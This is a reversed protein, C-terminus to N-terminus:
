RYKYIDRFPIGFMESIKRAEDRIQEFNIKDARHIKIKNKFLRNFFTNPNRYIMLTPRKIDITTPIFIDEIILYCKKNDLRWTIFFLKIYIEGDETLVIKRNFLLDIIQFIYLKFSLAILFIIFFLYSHIRSYGYLFISIFFAGHIIVWFAFYGDEISPKITYRKERIRNSKM